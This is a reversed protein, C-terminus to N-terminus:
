TALEERAERELWRAEEWAPLEAYAIQTPYGPWERTEMCKRWTTIAHEVKAEALALVDPGIGVVSLAYPPSTEQVIYRLEADQGTVARLGRVYWAAQIDSGISFMTRTWREPNASASTTKLDDIARYDDHLWDVLARCTVGDEQWILTQEAKGKAALLPPDLDYRELQERTADLMARVTDVQHALLPIRGEVRALERAEKAANTRWNDADVIVVVEDVSRQELLLAHACKGVDFRESHTERYDPNLKPHATWAHWPSHEYLLHAISASLSPTLCPDAHYADAPMTFIGLAQEPLSDAM